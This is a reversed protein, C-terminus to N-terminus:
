TDAQVGIGRQIQIGVERYRNMKHTLASQDSFLNFPTNNIHVLYPLKIENSDLEPLFDTRHILGKEM